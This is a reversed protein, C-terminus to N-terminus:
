QLELAQGWLTRMRFIDEVHLKGEEVPYKLKYRMWSAYVDEWLEGPPLGEEPLLAQSWRDVVPCFHCGGARDAGM